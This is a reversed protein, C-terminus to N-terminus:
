YRRIEGYNILDDYVSRRNYIYKWIMSTESIIEQQAGTEQTINFWVTLMQGLAENVDTGIYNM